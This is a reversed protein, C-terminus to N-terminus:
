RDGIVRSDRLLQLFGEMHLGLCSSGIKMNSYVSYVRAVPGEVRSSSKAHDKSHEKSSSSSGAAAGSGAAAATRDASTGDAAKAKWPTLQTARWKKIRELIV